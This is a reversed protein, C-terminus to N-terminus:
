DEVLMVIEKGTSSCRSGLNHIDQWCRIRGLNRTGEEVRLVEMRFDVPRGREQFGGGVEPDARRVGSRRRGLNRMCEEVRSVEKWLYEPEGREQVGGEM